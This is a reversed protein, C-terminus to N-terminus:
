GYCSNLNEKSHMYEVEKGKVGKLTTKDYYLKLISIVFDKPLYGKKYIRFNSIEIKEWHYFKRIVMFDQETLTTSLHDAKVVRGNDIQIKNINWCKSESIPHEISTSSELNYFTIDFLCCYKQLYNAFEKTSTITVLKGSSMPFKEYIMVSPYSSSFDYSTVDEITLGSYLANAHTFGGQFARKLQQYEKVSRICLSTMINHYKLYKSTNKKHSGDYLCQNRCYNRVYGTKTLPIKTINGDIEIREQIYAMVVLGDHLIYGIEKDTLPTKSHRILSYDLDGSMKEVKYKVLNKGVYELSYGSLIYSCRFEIGINSICQVPKRQSLAFIKEWSFLKRFFQFDYSLNHVYFIIRKEIDLSYRESIKGFCYMADEWTRGIICKGNFGLVWAYMIARKEGNEYFSTAEIDFACSVNGYEIKKSTKIFEIDDLLSDIESPKFIGNWLSFM